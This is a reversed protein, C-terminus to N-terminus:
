LRLISKAIITRMVEDAGAFISWALDNLYTPLAVRAAESGIPAALDSRYLPRERQLQLADYGHAEMVLRDIAKRIKAMLLKVVAALAGQTRGGQADWLMRLELMEMAQTEIELEDLRLMFERDQALCGYADSPLTQARQRLEQLDVLLGPALCSGGRENELLFKAIEWGQGEAGVLNAAPVRVDDFFVQNLEEDGSMTRIPNVRIGASRMDILLFSIGQQPKAQQATRVLCFIWNSFHANTTWIKTGNVVYEDAVREAKTQLRALDSGAQPESYGQCWVHEGNLIRPLFYQKQQPTGFTYIVPALLRVGQASIPPAGAIACEREFIYRQIHSWGPGSASVPWQYSLWGRAHLIAHWERYVERQMFVGPTNKVAHKLAASLNENLFDRVEARFRLDAASFNLEM